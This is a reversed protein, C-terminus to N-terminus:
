QKPRLYVNVNYCLRVFFAVSFWLNKLFFMPNKRWKKLLRGMKTERSVNKCSIPPNQKVYLVEVCLLWNMNENKSYKQFITERSVNIYVVADLCLLDACIFVHVAVDIKEFLLLCELVLRLNYCACGDKMLGCRMCVLDGEFLACIVCIYRNTCLILCFDCGTVALEYKTGNSGNESTIIKEFLVTAESTLTRTLTPRLHLLFSDSRSVFCLISM